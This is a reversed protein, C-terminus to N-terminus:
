LRSMGGYLKLGAKLCLVSVDEQWSLKDRMGPMELAGRQM